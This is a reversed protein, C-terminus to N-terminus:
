TAAAAMRGAGRGRSEAIVIGGLIVLAGIYGTSASGSASRTASSAPSSRSSCAPDGRGPEARRLAPGLAAAHVRARQLVVGTVVRRSSWRRRHDHGIGASSRRGPGRARALVVMQAATLAVPDFRQSLASGLVIWIASCSRAGSRSRTARASTSADRRSCSCGSASSSRGRDVVNRSRARPAHRRDRDVAHVRRVLRHHVRLEVDDHTRTRREPVLLGVFGVVGFAIAAMSSTAAPVRRRGPGRWGSGSRSRCRARDRRDHLAAPHLRRAHRRRARGARAHVDRRVRDDGRDARARASCGRTERTTGTATPVRDLDAPGATPSRCAAPGQRVGQPSVRVGPPAQRRKYENRDVMRAVRQVLEADYGRAISSPSRCTAKSTARSSRTSCTTRRAALRLREPRAAARGVAGQRHRGAPHDRPGARENLDRCLAYVLTKPVDKIVAFGGAMDGYLTAYGTAM